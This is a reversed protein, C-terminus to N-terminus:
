SRIHKLKSIHIGKLACRVCFNMHCKMTRSKGLSVILLVIHKIPHLKMENYRGM